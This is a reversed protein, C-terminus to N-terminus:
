RVSEIKYNISNALSKKKFNYQPLIFGNIVTTLPLTTTSVEPMPSSTSVSRPTTLEPTPNANFTTPGNLDSFIENSLDDKNEFAEVLSDPLATGDHIAKMHETVVENTLDLVVNNSSKESTINGEATSDSTTEQFKMSQTSEELIQSVNLTADNNVYKITDLHLPGNVKNAEM